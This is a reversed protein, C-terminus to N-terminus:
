RQLSFKKEDNTNKGRMTIHSTEKKIIQFKGFM